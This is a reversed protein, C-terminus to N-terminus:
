PGRVRGDVAHNSVVRDNGAGFCPLKVARGTATTTATTAAGSDARQTDGLSSQENAGVGDASMICCVGTYPTRANCNPASSSVFGLALLENSRQGKGLLRSEYLFSEPLSRTSAAGQPQFAPLSVSLDLCQLPRASRNMALVLVVCLVAMRRALEAPDVILSNLNVIWIPALLLGDCRTLRTADTATKTASSATLHRDSNRRGRLKLKDSLGGCLLWGTSDLPPESGNNLGNGKSSHSPYGPGLAWTGIAQRILAISCTSESTPSLSVMTVPYAYDTTNRPLHLSRISMDCAAAWTMGDRQFWKFPLAHDM